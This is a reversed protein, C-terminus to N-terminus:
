LLFLLLTRVLLPENCVVSLCWDYVGLSKGLVSLHVAAAGCWDSHLVARRCVCAGASAPRHNESEQDWLERQHDFASSFGCVTQGSGGQAGARWQGSAGTRPQVCLRPERPRRPVREKWETEARPAETETDQWWQSSQCARSAKAGPHPHLSAAASISKHSKQPTRRCCLSHWNWVTQDVQEGSPSSHFPKQPWICCQSCFCESSSFM